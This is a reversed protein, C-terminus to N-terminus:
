TWLFGRIEILRHLNRQDEQYWKEELRASEKLARGYAAYKKRDPEVWTYNDSGAIKKFRIPPRKLKKDDLKAKTRQTM